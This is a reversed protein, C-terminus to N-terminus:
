ISSGFILLISSPLPNGLISGPLTDGYITTCRVFPGAGLLWCFAYAFINPQRARESFV